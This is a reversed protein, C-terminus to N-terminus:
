TKGAQYPFAAANQAKSLLLNCIFKAHLRLADAMPLASGAADLQVFERPQSSNELQIFLIKAAQGQGLEM